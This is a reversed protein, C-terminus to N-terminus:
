ICFTFKFINNVFPLNTKSHNLINNIFKDLCTEKKIKVNAELIKASNESNNLAYINGQKYTNVLEFALDYFIKEVNTGNKASAEYYKLNNTKAFEEAAEKKVKREKEEEIDIKNGVLYIIENLDKTWIHYIM